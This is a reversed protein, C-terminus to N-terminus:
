IETLSAITPLDEWNVPEYSVSGNTSHISKLYKGANGTGGIKLKATQLDVYEDGADVKFVVNSDGKVAFDANALGGRNWLVGSATIESDYESSNDVRLFLTRGDAANLYTDQASAPGLLLGYHDADAPTVEEHM